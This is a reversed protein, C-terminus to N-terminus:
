LVADRHRAPDDRARGLLGIVRRLLQARVYNDDLRLDMGAPAALAAADLDRLAGVLRLLQGRLYEPHVKDRVLGAGLPALHAREEDFLAEGDVLLEVEADHEVA